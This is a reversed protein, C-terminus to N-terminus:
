WSLRQDFEYDPEPQAFDWQPDNSAQDPAMAVEWLPPGRAPSLIAANTRRHTGHRTTDADTIFAIIRMPANCIPCILPFAEYIRAMVLSKALTTQESLRIALLKMLLMYWLYHSAAHHSPKHSATIEPSSVTEADKALATVATRM